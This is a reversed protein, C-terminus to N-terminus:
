FTGLLGIGSGGQGMRMPVITTTMGLDNRVLVTKPAALGYILMAAGAAQAAGDIGLLLNGSSTSTNGMQIFPGVVPVWLAALENKRTGAYSGDYNYSVNASDAGVAAILASLLYMTGFTVAGGVVLGRRVRTETHYGPPVQADDNWDLIVRPGSLAVSQPVYSLQTQQSLPAVFEGNPAQASQPTPGQARRAPPPADDNDQAYAAFPATLLSAAVLSAAFRAPLVRNM